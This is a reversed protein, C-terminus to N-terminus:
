ECQQVVSRWFKKMEYFQLEKYGTFLEGDGREANIYMCMKESKVSCEKVSSTDAGGSFITLCM